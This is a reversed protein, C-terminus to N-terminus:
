VSDLTSDGLERVWAIAGGAAVFPGWNAQAEEPVFLSIFYFRPQIIVTLQFTSSASGPAWCASTQLTLSLPHGLPLDLSLSVAAAGMLASVASTGVDLGLAVPEGTASSDARAQAACVVFLALVAIAAARTPRMGTM